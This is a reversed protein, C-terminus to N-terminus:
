YRRLQWITASEHARDRSRPRYRAERRVVLDISPTAIVPQNVSSKVRASSFVNRARSRSGSSRGWFAVNSPLNSIGVSSSTIASALLSLARRPRVM